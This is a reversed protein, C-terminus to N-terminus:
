SLFLFCTCAFLAIGVSKVTVTSPMKGKDKRLLLGQFLPWNIFVLTGCLLIQLVMTNLTMAADNMAVKKMLGVFCFLNLLAITAIVIFMPSSSSAGFEMREKQYRESVDDDAVKATIVFAQESFGISKLIADMFGFLYSSTRKYLWMRQDNWWGLITGGSWLFEALSYFLRASIVYAFPIFWPSSSQM